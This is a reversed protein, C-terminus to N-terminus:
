IGVSSKVGKSSRKVEGLDGGVVRKTAVETRGDQPCILSMDGAGRARLGCCCSFPDAARGRPQLCLPRATVKWRSSWM